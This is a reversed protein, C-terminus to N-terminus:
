RVQQKLQDIETRLKENEERLEEVAKILEKVGALAVGAVDGAALYHDERQGDSKRITGVDFAAVFDEAVPGIHKEDSDKYNWSSVELNSIKSILENSVLSRFNEKFDRSSGNSWTGGYTLHAGNGNSSNTGVLVPYDGGGDNYDRNIRLRGSNTGDYFNVTRYTHVYVGDGFAMSNGAYSHITNNKGGPIASDNGYIENGTGGLVASNWADIHNDYGGSITCYHGEIENYVGGGITSYTTIATSVIKNRQGGGITTYDGNTENLNGGCITSLYGGATNAIGGGVFTYESDSVNYIGGVVTSYRDNAINSNGGCITAFMGIAQNNQGGGVFVSTDAAEDGALNNKGGAVVSNMSGATNDVGGAVTGATGSATNGSGGGVTSAWDNAAGHYGGAVTGYAGSVYNERGGGITSYNGSATDAEGGGVTARSGSAVNDKGGSVTTMYDEAKNSQGGGVTSTNGSAHNWHGGAVTAYGDSAMNDWGGGVTSSGGTADNAGGGAVTSVTGSAYNGGGGGVTSRDGTSQNTVGGGVTSSPGTADNRDGGGVTSYDNTAVNRYGGSVTSYSYSQGDTGTTCAVGLNIMTEDNAGHLMNDVEGKAIGWADNTYIVDASVTWNSGGGASSFAYDSTDARAAYGVMNIKQRPDLVESDIELELWYDEDFPLNVNSLTADFYGGSTACPLTQSWLSSGGTAVDFIRFTVDYTSDTVPNGSGDKLIGQYSMGRPVSTILNPLRSGGKYVDLNGAMIAPALIFVLMSISLTTLVIKNPKVNEEKTVPFQIPL